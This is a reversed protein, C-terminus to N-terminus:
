LIVLGRSHPQSRAHDDRLRRLLVAKLFQLIFVAREYANRMSIWM